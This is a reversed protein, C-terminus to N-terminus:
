KINRRRSYVKLVKCSESWPGGNPDKLSKVAMLQALRSISIDLFDELMCINDNIALYSAELIAPDLCPPPLILCPKKM